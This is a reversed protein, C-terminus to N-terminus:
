PLPSLWFSSSYGEGRYFLNYGRKEQLCM